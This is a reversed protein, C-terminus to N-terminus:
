ALLKELEDRRSARLLAEERAIRGSRVLGALSDEMTMMGERRGITLQSYVLHNKGTRILNRVADNAFLIECAPVRGKGDATPVLAQVVIGALSLSLQQRVQNQQYDPFSDIIRDVTQAADSTHLTSFVLHGTEAATLAIAMTELDRMEGIQLVDPDQRLAHRLASSFSPADHGVEVQEVVSRNHRHTFEVPDEISVIHAQRTRNVIDLLSAMTTSKGCGTPGCFLVLGRQLQAFRALSAPLNLSELGPIEAPLVRISLAISGRQHHLDCRFRGLGPREFTFDAAKNKVFDRYRVEDLLLLSISRTAEPRLKETGWPVLM